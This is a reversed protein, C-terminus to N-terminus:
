VSGDDGACQSSQPQRRCQLYHNYLDAGGAHQSSTARGSSDYTWTAYRNGNEDIIGTLAFPLSSNEYVYSQSTKPTTSYTVSALRDLVGPTVGSSSYGYTLVLGNPATMTQLLNSQYTFQLVRGFSDNVSVLQNSGNYSMMQMCGNRAEISTLLGGSNYTEISDDTDTLIWSSGSQVLRVDVDTGSMWNTGNFTFILEQGDAREAVASVVSNSETFRVYRDFTSRWNHSLSVARSNADSQSNYFRTFSLQNETVTSYDVIHEYM